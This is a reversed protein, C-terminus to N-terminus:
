EPPQEGASKAQHEVLKELLISTVLDRFMESKVGRWVTKGITGLFKGVGTWVSM